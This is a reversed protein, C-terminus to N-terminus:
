GAGGRSGSARRAFRREIADVIHVAAHGDGFLPPHDRAIDLQNWAEHIRGPDCGVLRNWGSAVTEAWETEDRLTLCPVGLCYAERQVGGSDTIVVRAHRELLLMELYGVPELLRVRPPVAIGHRAFAAATRPHCPFVVPDPGTGLARVISGLRNGDDTNAARHVTALAYAGPALGLEELLGRRSAAAPASARLADLMVDGVFEAEGIGEQVLNDLASRSSCLHLSALRDVVVRNVEEPMSRDGCREGAEVHAVPLGLKAAALAGALTSNTDGRVVVLDPREALWLQELALLAAATQEAHTGSGIGLDCAPQPLGLEEFFVRSMRDDYHQGTHVLVERHGRRAFEHSVPSAQVFEPRAGVVSAIHLPPGARSM